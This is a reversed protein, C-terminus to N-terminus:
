FVFHAHEEIAYSATLVDDVYAGAFNLDYLVHDTSSQFTQVTNRLGFFCFVFPINIATKPIHLEVQIQHSGSQHFLM